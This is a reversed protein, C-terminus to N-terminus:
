KPLTSGCNPCTDDPNPIVETFCNPCFVTDLFGLFMSEDDIGDPINMFGDMMTRGKEEQKKVGDTGNDAVPKPGGFDIMQCQVRFSSQIVGDKEFSGPVAKGVVEMRQGKRFHKSVFEARGDWAECYFWLTKPNGDRDLGDRVALSFLAKKHEGANVIKPNDGLHGSLIIQNM